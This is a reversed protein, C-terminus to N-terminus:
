LRSKASPTSSSLRARRLMIETSTVEQATRTAAAEVDVIVANATDMLYNLNYGSMVKRRGSRNATVGSSQNYSSPCIRGRM